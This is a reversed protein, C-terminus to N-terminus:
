LQRLHTIGTGVTEGNAKEAKLALEVCHTDEEKYIKTVTSSCSIQDGPRTVSGFRMRFRFIEASTGAIAMVYEGLFGMILMGHAIAGDMGVKKAFEDDTHLPNFDGSAGAYKVLQVKTVPPKTLSKLQQGEKLSTFDLSTTTAM